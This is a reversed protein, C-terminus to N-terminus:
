HRLTRREERGVGGRTKTSCRGSEKGTNPLRLGGGRVGLSRRGSPHRGLCFGEQM